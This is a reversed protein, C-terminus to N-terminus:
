RPIRKEQRTKSASAALRQNESILDIWLATVFSFRQAQTHRSVEGYRGEMARNIKM